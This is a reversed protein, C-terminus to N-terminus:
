TTQDSRFQLTITKCITIKIECPRKGLNDKSEYLFTKKFRLFNLISSM